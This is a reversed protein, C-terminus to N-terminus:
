RKGKPKRRVNNGNTADKEKRSLDQSPKIKFRQCLKQLGQMSAITRKQKSTM